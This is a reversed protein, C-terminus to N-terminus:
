QAMNTPRWSVYTCVCVFVSKVVCSLNELKGLSNFLTHLRLQWAFEHESRNAFHGDPPSCQCGSECAQNIKNMKDFTDELELCFVSYHFQNTTLQHLLLEAWKTNFICIKGGECQSVSAIILPLLTILSNKGKHPHICCLYLISEWVQPSLPDGSELNPCIM